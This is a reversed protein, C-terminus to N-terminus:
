IDSIYKYPDLITQISTPIVDSNKGVVFDSRNDYYTAALQLIALKLASNNMGATVYVIKINTDEKTVTAKRVIQSIQELEEITLNSWFYTYSPHLPVNFKKSLLMNYYQNNLSIFYIHFLFLKVTTKNIAYFIIIINNINSRRNLLKYSSLLHM